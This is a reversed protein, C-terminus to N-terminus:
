ARKLFVTVTGHPSNNTPDEATMALNLKEGAAISANAATITATHIAQAALAGDASANSNYSACANGNCSLTLLIEDTATDAVAFHPVYYMKDVTAAFPMVADLDTNVINANTSEGVKFTILVGNLDDVASDVDGSTAGANYNAQKQKAIINTTTSM